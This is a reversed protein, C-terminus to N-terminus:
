SMVECAFRGDQVWGHANFLTWGASRASPAGIYTGNGLGKILAGNPSRRFNAYTDGPDQVVCQGLMNTPVRAEAPAAAFGVSTATLAALALAKFNM